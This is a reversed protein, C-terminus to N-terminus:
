RRPMILVEIGTMHRRDPYVEVFSREARQRGLFNFPQPATFDTINRVQFFDFETGGPYDGLRPNGVRQFM